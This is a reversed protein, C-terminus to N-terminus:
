PLNGLTQFDAKLGGAREGIQEAWVSNGGHFLLVFARGLGLNAQFAALHNAAINRVIPAASCNSTRRSPWTIAVGRGPPSCSFM